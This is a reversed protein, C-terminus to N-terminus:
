LWSCCYWTSCCCCAQKVQMCARELFKCTKWLLDRFAFSDHTMRVPAVEARLCHVLKLIRFIRAVRLVRLVQLNGGAGFVLNVYAPMIATVDIINMPQKLYAFIGNASGPRHACCIVRTIYEFSFHAICVWEAVKYRNLLQPNTRVVELTETVFTITSLIVLTQIWLSLFKALKGSDPEELLVFITQLMDGDAIFILKDKGKREALAIADDDVLTDLAVGGAVSFNHRLYAAKPHTSMVWKSFQEFDIDLNGTEDPVAGCARMIDNIEDSTVVLNIKSFVDQIEAEDLTGGGDEDVEFFISRMTNMLKDADANVDSSGHKGAAVTLM